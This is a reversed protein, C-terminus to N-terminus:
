AFTGVFLALWAVVIAVLAVILARENREDFPVQGFWDDTQTNTM